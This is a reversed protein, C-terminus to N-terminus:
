FVCPLVKYEHQSYKFHKFYLSNVLVSVEGM